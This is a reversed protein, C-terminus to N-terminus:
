FNWYGSFNNILENYEQSCKKDIEIQLTKDIKEIFSRMYEEIGTYAREIVYGLKSEQVHFGFYLEDLKETEEEIPGIEITYSYTINAIMM